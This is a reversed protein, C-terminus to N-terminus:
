KRVKRIEGSEIKQWYQVIEDKVVPMLLYLGIVNPIAMMFIMSDSFDIVPDLSM